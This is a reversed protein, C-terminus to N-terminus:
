SDSTFFRVIYSVLTAVGFFLVVFVIGSTLAGIFVM